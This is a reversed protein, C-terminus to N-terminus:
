GEDLSNDDRPSTVDYESPKTEVNTDAPTATDDDTSFSKTADKIADGTNEIFEETREVAQQSDVEAKGKDFEIVTRNEDNRFELWGMAYSVGFFGIALVAFLALIGVLPGSRRRSM